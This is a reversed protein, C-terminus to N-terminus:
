EARFWRGALHGRGLGTQKSPQGRSKQDPWRTELKCRRERESPFCVRKSNSSYFWEIFCQDTPSFSRMAKSLTCVVSCPEEFAEGLSVHLLRHLWSALVNPPGENYFCSGADGGRIVEQFSDKEGAACPQKSQNVERRPPECGCPGCLPQM